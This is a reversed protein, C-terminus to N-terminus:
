RVDAFRLPEFALWCRGFGSALFCFALAATIPIVELAVSAARAPNVSARSRGEANVLQQAHRVKGLQM